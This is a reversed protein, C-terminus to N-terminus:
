VNLCSKLTGQPKLSFRLVESIHWFIFLTALQIEMGAVQQLAKLPCWQWGPVALLHNEPWATGKSHSSGTYLLLQLAITLSIPPSHLETFKSPFDKVKNRNYRMPSAKSTWPWPLFFQTLLECHKPQFHKISNLYWVESFLILFQSMTGLFYILFCFAKLFLLCFHCSAIWFVLVRDQSNATLCEQRYGITLGANHSREVVSKGPGGVPVAARNHVWAM